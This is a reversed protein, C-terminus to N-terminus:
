FTSFRTSLKIKRLLQQVMGLLLSPNGGATTVTSSSPITRIEHLLNRTGTMHASTGSDLFWGDPASPPLFEAAHVKAEAVDGEAAYETVNAWHPSHQSQKGHLQLEM